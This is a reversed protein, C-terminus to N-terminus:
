AWEGTDYSARRPAPELDTVLAKAREVEEALALLAPLHELMRKRWIRHWYLQEQTGTNPVPKALLRRLEEITPAPLDTM